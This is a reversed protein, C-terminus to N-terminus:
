ASYPELKSKLHRSFNGSSGAPNYGLHKAEVIGAEGAHYMATCFQRSNLTRSLLLVTMFSVFEQGASEPPLPEDLDSGSENPWEVESADDGHVSSPGDDLPDEWAESENSDSSVEWSHRPGDASGDSQSSAEWSHIGEM